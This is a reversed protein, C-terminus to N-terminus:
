KCNSFHGNQPAWVANAMTGILTGDTFVFEGEAHSMSSYCGPAGPCYDFLTSHDDDTLGIWGGEGESAELAAVQDAANHINALTMGVGLCYDEAQHWTFGDAPIDGTGAGFFTYKNSAGPGCSVLVNAAYVDRGDYSNDDFEVEGRYGNGASPHTPVNIAGRGATKEVTTIPMACEPVVFAAGLDLTVPPCSAGSSCQALASIDWEQEAGGNVSVLAKGALDGCGQGAAGWQGGYQIWM